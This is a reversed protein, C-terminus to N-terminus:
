AFVCLFVAKSNGIGATAPEKDDLFGRSRIPLELAAKRSIRRIGEGRCAAAAAIRRAVPGGPVAQRRRRLRPVSAAPNRLDRCRKNEDLSAAVNAPVAAPLAPLEKGALEALGAAGANGFHDEARHGRGGELRLNSVGWLLSRLRRMRLDANEGFARAEEIRTSGELRLWRMSQDIASM